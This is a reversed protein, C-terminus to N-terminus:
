KEAEQVQGDFSKSINEITKKFKKNRCLEKGIFTDHTSKSLGYYDKFCKIVPGFESKIDNKLVRINIVINNRAIKANVKFELFVCYNGPKLKDMDNFSMNVSTKEGPNLPELVIEKMKIISKSPDASLITKNKPWALKGNNELELTFVIQKIGKTVIFDLDNTLCNFSYDNINKEERQSENIIKSNISNNTKGKKSKSIEKTNNNKNDEENKKSSKIYSYSSKSDKFDINKNEDIIESNENM